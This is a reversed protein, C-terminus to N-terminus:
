FSIIKARLLSPPDYDRKGAGIGTKEVCFSEPLTYSTASAAALAAGTPTILEGQRSTVTVPLPYANLINSVAPVPIPLLGHQCRVQGSGERLEPIIVQEIGLEDMCISFAAIDVISDVAGVEHFHVKDIDVQHAKAEGEALIHFIRKGTEKANSSLGSNELIDLVDCLRRHSHHHHPAPATETYTHSDGFLYEMDHDHNDFEPDLIVDFDCASTGNKTVQSIKIEYGKLPLTKLTDKLKRQDVGLDLLAAVAMDGSIGSLCELYLAKEM